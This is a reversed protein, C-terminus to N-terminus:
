GKSLGSAIATARAPNGKRMENMLSITDQLLAVKRRFADFLSEQAFQSQPDNRLAQRSDDIAEDIIDLNAKVTAMLAPDIPSESENAVRELGAIANEYHKAALDLESEISTVLDGTAADAPAAAALPAPPRSTVLSQRLLSLSGGVVVILAAALVVWRWDFRSTRPAAELDAAAARQFEPDQELRASIRDWSRPSPGETGVLRLEAQLRRVDTVLAQCARCTALHADLAAAAERGLVGLLQADLAHQVDECTM